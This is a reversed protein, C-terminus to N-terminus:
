GGMFRSKWDPGSTKKAAKRNLICGRRRVDKLNWLIADWVGRLREGQRFFISELCVLPFALFIYDPIFLLGFYLPHLNKRALLILNRTNYFSRNYSDRFSSSVRHWCMAEPVYKINWGAKLLRACFDIDESGYPSFEIDLLGIKKFVATRIFQACGIQFSINRIQDFQGCDRQNEGRSTDIWSPPRKKLLRCLRNLIVNGAHLYTWKWSTCGARWIVHDQGDSYIKPGFMATDPYREAANSLHYLLKPHAYADNDFLFIYKYNHRLGFLIGINRGGSVGYNKRTRHVTTNPFEKKLIGTPDTDSHNDIVLIDFSKKKQLTLSELCKRTNKLENWNLIVVLIERM